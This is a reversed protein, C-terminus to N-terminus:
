GDAGNRAPISLLHVLRADDIQRLAVLARLVTATTHIARRDCVITGISAAGQGDRGWSAFAEANRLDPPPVRLRASARWAGDPRQMEFLKRASRSVLELEFDSAVGSGVASILVRLGLSTAFPSGEPEIDTVVSGNDDIRTAAWEAAKRVREGDAPNAGLAEVAHATAFEPDHWWYAHWNGHPAQRARLFELARDRGPLAQLSGAVATVCTHSSCWGAFHSRLGTFRSIPGNWSYTAVGGDPRMHRALFRRARAVRLSQRVGIAQALLLAWATTDADVPVRRHYGWGRRYPDRRALLRWANRAASLAEDNGSLALATAVYGTIWADSPGAVDFDHWWGDSDRASLLFEVAHQSCDSLAM